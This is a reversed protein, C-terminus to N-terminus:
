DRGESLVLMALRRAVEGEGASRLVVAADFNWVTADVPPYEGDSLEKYRGGDCMVLLVGQEEWFRGKDLVVAFTEYREKPLSFTREENRTCPSFREPETGNPLTHLAGITFGPRSAVLSRHDTVVASLTPSSPIRFELHITLGPPLHSMLTSSFSTAVKELLAPTAAAARLFPVWIVYRLDPEAPGSKSAITMADGPESNLELDQPLSIEPQKSLAAAESENTPQGEDEDLANDWSGDELKSFNYMSTLMKTMLPVNQVRQAVMELKEPLIAIEDMEVGIFKAM